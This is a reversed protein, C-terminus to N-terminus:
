HTDILRTYDDLIKEVNNSLTKTNNQLTTRYNENDLIKVIQEQLRTYAQLKSNIQIIAKNDLMLSLEEKFNDMYRGTIIACNYSAPELINHGGIPVFSGGMIVLQAREFYDKLEGVTDLLFVETQDTIPQKKSRIAIADTDLQKIISARRDPHRPAIVLLEHRKLKKWASFIQQEEDKHTSAVLVYERNEPVKSTSPVKQDDLATTLKLNGITSVKNKNAGLLLYSETDSASRTYIATVKSLSTKLIKRIWANASTTKNSLRANIIHIPVTKKQCNRFLNPWIETEMVYLAVPQTRSLFNNIGYSWDFPLYCHFLYSLKQQQVIKGGTVTNTTIIIKIHNNKKHLNELLPLLTTVEGVSACHFWLSKEPLNFYDFGLRQWFYRGQRNIIALWTIHGIILPSLLFILFRYSLM